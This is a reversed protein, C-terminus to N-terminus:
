STSSERTNPRGRSPRIFIRAALGTGNHHPSAEDFWSQLTEERRRVRWAFVVRIALFLTSIGHWAAVAWLGMDPRGALWAVTLLILNPNRRATILRNLSDIPRWLFLPFKALWLEFIGESLRGGVYGLFMVWLTIELSPFLTWTSLGLGWALYWLPPHVLDTGHDLVNGSRSSSITVRALKGDVTDLFTMIWGALLGLGFVGQYFAFGAVIALMLGTLTVHNPKIGLSICLRTAWRAPVPWLWKTVLDTVGKYSGSFLEKELQTRNAPTIALIRPPDFKRLALAFSSALDAPTKSTLQNLAQGDDGNSLDRSVSAAQDGTTRAAAAPGAPATHLAVNERTQLLAKVLRPDFIYDGRLLVVAAGPALADLRDILRAEPLYALMRQLRERGTLGWVQVKSDGILHVYVAM